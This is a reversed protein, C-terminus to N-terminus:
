QERIGDKKPQAPAESLYLEQLPLQLGSAPQDPVRPSGQRASVDPLAAWLVSHVYGRHALPGEPVLGTKNPGGLDAARGNFERLNRNRARRRPRIVPEVQGDDALEEPMRSRRSGGAM